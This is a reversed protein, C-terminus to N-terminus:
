EPRHIQDLSSLERRSSTRFFSGMATFIVGFMLGFLPTLKGSQVAVIVGGISCIAGMSFLVFSALRDERAWARQQRLKASKKKEQLEDALADYFVEDDM